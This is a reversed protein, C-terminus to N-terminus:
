PADAILLVKGLNANSELLRHAEAAQGLPLRAHILPRVLGSAIWPLLNERICTALRAKEEV